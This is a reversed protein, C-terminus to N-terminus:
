AQVEWALAEPPRIAAERGEGSPYLWCAVSQLPSISALEPMTERCKPMAHPCREAFPCGVIDETLPPVHGPIPTLETREGGAPPLSAMLGQTYPHAPNDFLAGVEAKEVVYGRYMVIVEDANEAVVGLDHTILLTAMGLDEGLDRLLELIQAQVTVDLATTPEDAILVSPKCAIAIAIMVRQRMGGSLQFPYNLARQEPAPIGVLRLLEIAKDWAQRRSLGMHYRLSETIQDGVTYVPDLATMPDQFVMAIRRGRIARMQSGSPDLKAIDQPGAGMDLLISGESIRLPSSLLNMASLATVSKGCGSEGVLALTKGRHLQLNV